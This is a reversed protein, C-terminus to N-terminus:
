EHDHGPKRCKNKFGKEQNGNKNSKTKRIKDIRYEDKIDEVIIRAEQTTNKRYGRALKFYGEWEEHINPAICETVLQKESLSTAGDGILKIRNNITKMSHVWKGANMRLPKETIRIYQKQNDEPKM